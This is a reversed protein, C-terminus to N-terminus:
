TGCEVSQSSLTGRGGSPSLTRSPTCAGRCVLLPWPAVQGPTSREAETKARPEQFGIPLETGLRLGDWRPQSVPLALCLVSLSSSSHRTGARIGGLHDEAGKGALYGALKGGERSAASGGEPVLARPIPAREMEFSM